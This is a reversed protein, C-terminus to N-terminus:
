QLSAHKKVSGHNHSPGPILKYISLIKIYRSSICVEVFIHSTQPGHTAQFFVVLLITQSKSKQGCLM